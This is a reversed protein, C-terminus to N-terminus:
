QYSYSDLLSSHQHNFLCLSSLETESEGSLASEIVIRFTQLDHMEVNSM